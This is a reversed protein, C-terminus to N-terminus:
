MVSFTALGPPRAVLGAGAKAGGLGLVAGGLGLVLGLAGGALGALKVPGLVAGALFCPVRPLCSWAIRTAVAAVAVSTANATTM